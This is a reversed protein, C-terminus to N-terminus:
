KKLQSVVYFASWIPGGNTLRCTLLKSTMCKKLTLQDSYKPTYSCLLNPTKKTSFVAHELQVIFDFSKLPLCIRGITAHCVVSM